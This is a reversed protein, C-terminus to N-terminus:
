RIEVEAPYIVEGGDSNNSKPLNQKRAQWGRHVLTGVYPPEGVVKGVVKIKAADYGKPLRIEAGERDELVPRPAVLEELCESCARHVERAAAGVQSDDFQAIDEQLFDILRGNNQLQALLRLHNIDRAAEAKPKQEEIGDVFAKAAKPDKLAKFFAKFALLLSM